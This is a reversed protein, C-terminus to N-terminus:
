KSFKEKIKEFGLILPYGSMFTLPGVILKFLLAQTLLTSWGIGTLLLTMSAHNMAVFLSAFFGFVAIILLDKIKSRGIRKSVRNLFLGFGLIIVPLIIRGGVATGTTIDFAVAGMRVGVLAPPSIVVVANLMNAVRVGFIKGSVSSKSLTPTLICMSFYLTAISVTIAVTKIATKVMTKSLFEVNTWLSSIM